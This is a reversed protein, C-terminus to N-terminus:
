PTAAPVRLRALLEDLARRERAALDDIRTLSAEIDASLRAESEADIARRIGKRRSGRGILRWEPEFEGGHVAEM